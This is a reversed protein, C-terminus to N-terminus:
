DGSGGREQRLVAGSLLHPPWWCFGGQYGGIRLLVRRQCPRFALVFYTKGPGNPDEPEYMVLGGGGRTSRFRTLRVTSRM